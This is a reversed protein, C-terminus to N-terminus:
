GGLSDFWFRNFFAGFDGLDWRIDWSCTYPFCLLDLLILFSPRNYQM